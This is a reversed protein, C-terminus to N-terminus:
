NKSGTAQNEFGRIFKTKRLVLNKKGNIYKDNQYDYNSSISSSKALCLVASTILCVLKM